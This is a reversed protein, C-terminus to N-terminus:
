ENMCTLIRNVNRVKIFLVMYYLVLSDFFPVNNKGSGYVHLILMRLLCLKIYMPIPLDDDDCM